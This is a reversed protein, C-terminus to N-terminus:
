RSICTPTPLNLAHQILDRVVLPSQMVVTNIGKIMPHSPQVPAGVSVQFQLELGDATEHREANPAMIGANCVLLDLQRDEKCFRRFSSHFVDIWGGPSIFILNSADNPSDDFAGLM